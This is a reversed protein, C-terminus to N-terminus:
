IMGCLNKRRGSQLADVLGLKINRKLKAKLEKNFVFEYYSKNPYNAKVKDYHIKYIEKEELRILKRDEYAKKDEYWLRLTNEWDVPLNSRVKGSDDIWVNGQNKRLEIIGMRCPLKVDHGLAIENAMYNNIKRIISFYQSESLIYKKEKPKKKRYSKYADYVGLSGRIKHIRHESIKRIRKKFEIFSDM